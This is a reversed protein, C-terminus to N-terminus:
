KWRGGDGISIESQHSSTRIQIEWYCSAQAQGLRRRAVCLQSWPQYLSATAHALVLSAYTGDPWDDGNDSRRSPQQYSERFLVGNRVRIYICWAHPHPLPPPPVTVCPHWLSLGFRIQCTADRSRPSKTELPGRHARHTGATWQRSCCEWAAM